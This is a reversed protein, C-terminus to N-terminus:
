EGKVKVYTEDVRWSGDLDGSRGWALLSDSDARQDIRGIRLVHFFDV